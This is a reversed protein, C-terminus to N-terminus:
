AAKVRTRTEAEAAFVMQLNEELFRGNFHARQKAQQMRQIARRQAANLSALAAKHEAEIEQPTITM